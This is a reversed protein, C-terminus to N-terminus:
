ALTANNLIVLSYVFIEGAVILQIEMTDNAHINAARCVLRGGRHSLSVNGLTLSSTINYGSRTSSISSVYPDGTSETLLSAEGDGVGLYYWTINAIPIAYASCTFTVSNSDEPNDLIIPATDGLTM